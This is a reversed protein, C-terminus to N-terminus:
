SDIDISLWIQAWTSKLTCGLEIGCQKIVTTMLHGFFENTGFQNNATKSQKGM